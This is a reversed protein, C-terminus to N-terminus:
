GRFQASRLVHIRRLTLPHTLPREAKLTVKATAVEQAQRLLESRNVYPLLQPGVTLMMLGDTAAEVDGVLALAVADASLEDLRSLPRFVQKAYTRFLTTHGLAHHALEHAVIFSLAQPRGAQLAGWVVDDLLVITQRAGLRFALANLESSEAIYIDPVKAMGLRQAYTRAAEYVPALQRENVSLHSGRLRALILKRQFMEVVLGVVLLLLGVGATGIVMGLSVFGVVVVALASYLGTKPAIHARANV